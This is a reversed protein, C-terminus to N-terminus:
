FMAFSLYPDTARRRRGHIADGVFATLLRVNLSHHLLTTAAQTSLLPVWSLDPYVNPHNSVLLSIDEIWPYSCHLLVFRTEPFKQIAERL